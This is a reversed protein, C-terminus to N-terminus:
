APVTTGHWNGGCLIVWASAPHETSPSLLPACALAATPEIREGLHSLLLEHTRVIDVESVTLVADVKTLLIPFTLSGLHMTRVADAVTTPPADLAVLKGAAFSRAADDAAAPEVGIIRTEPHLAKMVTAIGSILGGGGVAVYITEPPPADALMELALTGQGAIVDEDNFPHILTFGTSQQVATVVEERNAVTVGERIIQAGLSSVLAIKDPSSDEPMVIVAPKHQLTAAYAVAAGHNGSSVAVFGVADPKRLSANLAGRLKFSGTRQRYEAKFSLEMHLRAALEGGPLLPTHVIHPRIREQAAAVAALDVTM